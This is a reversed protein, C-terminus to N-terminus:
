DARFFMSDVMREKVPRFLNNALLDEIREDKAWPHDIHCWDLQIFEGDGSILLGVARASKADYKAAETFMGVANSRMRVGDSGSSPWDPDLPAVMFTCDIGPVTFRFPRCPRREKVAEMSKILRLKFERWISRSSNAFELLIRYYDNSPHPNQIHALLDGLIPTLDFADLDQVFARLQEKSGPVPLDYERLFGVMIDPEEVVVGDEHLQPLVQERYEFYLRIDNPVRLKDVIGLYDHVAIIHMFGATRSIYFKTEWCDQPLAKSGSFVIVKKIDTLDASRVEISHGQANKLGISEHETLYRTSDRIQKTAKGLVKNHFWRKETEPDDTAETREKLQFIYALPGILIIGDALEVRQEPRPNFWTESYTFEKWFTSGNLQATFEELTM